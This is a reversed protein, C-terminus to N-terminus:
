RRPETSKRVMFPRLFLDTDLGLPEITLGAENELQTAVQALTPGTAESFLVVNPYKNTDLSALFPALVVFPIRIINLRLDVEWFARTLGSPTTQSIIVLLQDPNNSPPKLSSRAQEVIATVETVLFENADRQTSIKQLSMAGYALAIVVLAATAVRAQGQNTRRLANAMGVVSLPILMPLLIQFLRGGWQTSGGDGYITLVLGVLAIITAVIFTLTRPDQVDHRTPWILAFVVLPWAPILGTILQTTSLGVAISGVAALVLLLVAIQRYRPVMRWIVVATLILLLDLAVWPTANAASQWPQLLAIWAGNVLDTQEGLLAQNPNSLFGTTSGLISAAWQRDVLWGISGFVTVALAIYLSTARPRSVKHMVPMALVGTAVALAAIFVVSETRLMPLLAAAMAMPILWCRTKYALLKVTSLVIVGILAVAMSHAGVVYSNFLLPSSLGALMMSPIGFRPDLSRGILGILISATVGGFVSVMVLGAKGFIAYPGALIISFLPHRGYPIRGDETIVTPTLPDMINNHGLGPEPRGTIWGDETLARAQASYVGEDPLAIYGNYMLPTLLFMIATLVIAAGWFSRTSVLWDPGRAPSQDTTSSATPNIPDVM